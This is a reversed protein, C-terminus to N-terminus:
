EISDGTEQMVVDCHTIGYYKFGNVVKHTIRQGCMIIPVAPPCSVCPSALIRGVANEVKVTESLSIIAQRPTIIQDCATIEPPKENIPTLRPISLLTKELFVLEEAKPYQDLIIDGNGIYIPRVDLDKLKKKLFIEKDRLYVKALDM